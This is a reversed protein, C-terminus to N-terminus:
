HMSANIAAIQAALEAPTPDNPETAEPALALAWPNPAMFQGAHWLEGDKRVLAGNSLSALAQAHRAAGHSPTLQEAELYVIWDGFEKASM